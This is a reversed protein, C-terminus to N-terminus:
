GYRESKKVEEEALVQETQDEHLLVAYSEDNFTIPFISTRLLPVAFERNILLSDVYNDFASYKQNEFAEKILQVAGKKVLENDQFINYEKIESLSYGWQITFLENVYVVYGEKNVVQIPFRISDYM